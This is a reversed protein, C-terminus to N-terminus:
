YHIDLCAKQYRRALMEQSCTCRYDESKRNSRPKSRHPTPPLSEDLTFAQRALSECSRSSYGYKRLSNNRSLSNSRSLSSNRPLSGNRPISYSKSSTHRPLSDTRTIVHTRPLSDYRRPKRPLSNCPTERKITINDYIHTDCEPRPVCDYSKSLPLIVPNAINNCSPPRPVPPVPLYLAEHFDRDRRYQYYSIIAALSFNYILM